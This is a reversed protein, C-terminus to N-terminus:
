RMEAVDGIPPPVGDPPMRDLERSFDVRYIFVKANDAPVNTPWHYVLTGHEAFKLAIPMFHLRPHPNNLKGEIVVFTVRSRPHPITPSRVDNAYFDTWAFPDIIWDDPERHQSLWVGAAHHGARNSHLSKMGAPICAAVLAFTIFWAWFAPQGHRALRPLRSLWVGMAAVATATFYSGCLVVLLTHREAVYGARSAVIWLLLLHLGGLLALLVVSADQRLRSRLLFIGFIAFLPLVYFSAKIIEVSLAKVGWLERSAFIGQEQNWWEALPFAVGTPPSQSSPRGWEPQLEGETLGKGTPKNTLKGITVVYPMMAILLGTALAASRVLAPKWTWVGRWKLGLIVLGLAVVVILGEPRVLYALGAFLGGAAFWSPGGRRLGVVSFWLALAMMLLFVSDSLGDSTVQTCVPLVQYLLAAITAIQRNFLLKGVFYMPFVLLLSAFISALQASLVMSDCTTEGMVSRVPWSVALLAIPYGPPQANSRIVDLRTKGEPPQELQLAFRIFGISDRSLVETHRLVWFRTSFALLLILGIRWLDASWSCGETSGPKSENLKSQMENM